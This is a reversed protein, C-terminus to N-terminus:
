SATYKDAYKEREWLRTGDHACSRVCLQGKTLRAPATGWIEHGFVYFSWSNGTLKVKMRLQTPLTGRRLNAPAKDLGLRCVLEFLYHGVHSGVPIAESYHLINAMHCKWMLYVKVTQKIELDTVPCLLIIKTCVSHSRTAKKKNGGM